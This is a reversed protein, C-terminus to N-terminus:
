SDSKTGACQMIAQPGINPEQGCLFEIAVNVTASACSGCAQELVSGSALQQMSVRVGLGAVRGTRVLGAVPAWRAACPKPVTQCRDASAQCSGVHALTDMEPATAGTRPLASGCASRRSKALCGAMCFHGASWPKWAHAHQQLENSFVFPRSHQKTCRHDILCRKPAM